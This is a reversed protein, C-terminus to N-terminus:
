RSGDGISAAKGTTWSIRPVVSDVNITVSELFRFCFNCVSTTIDRVRENDGSDDNGNKM